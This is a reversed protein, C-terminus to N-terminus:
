GRIEGEEVYYERGLLQVVQLMTVVIDKMDDKTDKVKPVNNGIVKTNLSIECESAFKTM